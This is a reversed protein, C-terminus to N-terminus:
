RAFQYSRCNKIKCKNRQNAGFIKSGSVQYPLATIIIEDNEEIYVARMRIGGNGTRYM